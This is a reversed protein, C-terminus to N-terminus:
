CYISKLYILPFYFQELFLINIFKCFFISFSSDFNKYNNKSTIKVYPIVYNNKNRLNYKSKVISNLNIQSFLVIPFKNVTLGRYNM